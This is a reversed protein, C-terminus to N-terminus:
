TMWVTGNKALNEMKFKAEANGDQVIKQVTSMLDQKRVPFGCKALQIIWTVIKNENRLTLYPDPGMKRPGDRIRGSLRDQVTSRPVCFDPCIKRIKGGNKIATVANQLNEETYKHYKRKSTSPM